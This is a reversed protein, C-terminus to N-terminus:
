APAYAGNESRKGIWKRKTTQIACTPAAVSPIGNQHDVVGMGMWNAHSGGGGSRKAGLNACCVFVWDAHGSGVRAMLAPGHRPASIMFQENEPASNEVWQTRLPSSHGVNAMQRGEALLQISWPDHPPEILPKRWWRELRLTNFNERQDGKGVPPDLWDTV